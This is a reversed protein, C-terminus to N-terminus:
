SAFHVKDVNQIAHLIFLTFVRVNQTASSERLITQRTKSMKKGDELGFLKSFNLNQHHLIAHVTHKPDVIKIRPNSTSALLDGM